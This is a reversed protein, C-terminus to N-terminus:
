WERYDFELPSIGKKHALDRVAEQFLRYRDPYNYKPSELVKFNESGWSKMFDTSGLPIYHSLSERKCWVKKLMQQDMPCHCFKFKEKAAKKGYCTIYFYKMMINILKQANGFTFDPNEAEKKNNNIIECVSIATSLFDADYDEQCHYEGKLVKDIFESLTEKLSVLVDSEELWKKEGKYAKQLVADRIAALYIFKFINEDKEDLNM